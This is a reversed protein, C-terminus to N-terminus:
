AAQPAAMVFADLRIASLPAGGLYLARKLRTMLSPDGCLFFAGSAADAEAAKVTEILDEGEDRLCPIYSFNSHAAELAELEGRLYLGAADPAGHYLRIPGAHEAQLADHLIGWLPALGTGTGALVLASQPGVEQYFCGGQPGIVEFADGPRAAAIRASMRGGTYLRVHLGIDRGRVEAISYSRILGDEAVLNVFQGARCAFDDELTLRLRVVSSSLADVEVVKARVRARRSGAPEVTLPGDIRCVCAMALGEAKAKASLGARAAPPVEGSTVQVLCTQCVGARCSSEVEVGATELAELITQGRTAGIPEGRFTLLTM